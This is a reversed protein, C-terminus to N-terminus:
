SALEFRFETEAGDFETEVPDQHAALVRAAGNEALVRAMLVDVGHRRADGATARVLARGLGHHQWEDAVSISIEAQEPHARDRDWHAVAVIEDADFVALAGHDLGDVLQLHARVLPAPDTTGTLFRYYLSRDSMRQFSAVVADVDRSDVPRMELEAFPERGNM